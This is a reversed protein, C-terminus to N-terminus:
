LQKIGQVEGSKVRSYVIIAQRQEKSQIKSKESSGTQEHDSRSETRQGNEPNARTQKQEAHIGRDGVGQVMWSDEM